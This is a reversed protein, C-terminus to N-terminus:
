RLTYYSTDWIGIRLSRRIEKSGFIAEVLLRARDPVKSSTGCKSDYYPGLPQGFSEDVKAEVAVVVRGSSCTGEAILDHHRGEGLDDFQTVLEPFARHITACSTESRSNLIDLLDKPTSPQGTGVWARALEKASRGCVWHEPSRPPAWRHWDELNFILQGGPGVIELGM